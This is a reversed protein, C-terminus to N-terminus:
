PPENFQRLTILSYIACAIGMGGMATVAIPASYLEALGGVAFSALSTFGDDLLYISMIRGRLTDPIITQILTNNNVGFTMRFFGVMAISVLSTLLWSSQAFLILSISALLLMMPGILWRNIRLPISALSLTALIGGVGMALILAGYTDARSQLVEAAFVPLLFIMPTIFLASAFNLLVLRRVLGNKSVYGIGQRINNFIPTDRGTPAEQYPTKMPVLLIVMCVYLAAQIFFNTGPGIAVILVGGIGPGILRAVNGSVSYLAVANWIYEKRVTNAILSHRVPLNMSVLSGNIVTFLFAHWIEDKDFAVLLAFLITSIALSTQTMVLLRPRSIRDALVGALPGLIFIPLLRLGGVVGVLLPSLSDEWVLWGVTVQQFWNATASFFNFPLLLRFNRERLASFTQLHPLPLRTRHGSPRRADQPENEM